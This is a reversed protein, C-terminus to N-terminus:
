KSRIKYFGERFAKAQWSDNGPKYLKLQYEPNAALEAGLLRYYNATLNHAM